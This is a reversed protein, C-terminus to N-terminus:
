KKDQLAKITDDLAQNYHIDGDSLREFYETKGDWGTLSQPYKETKRLAEIKEVAEDIGAQHAQTLSKVYYSRLDRLNLYPHDDGIETEIIPWRKDFEEVMEEIRPTTNTDHLTKVHEKGTKSM